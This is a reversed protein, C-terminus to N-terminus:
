IPPRSLNKIEVNYLAVGARREEMNLVRFVVEDQEDSCIRYEQGNQLNNDVLPEYEVEVVDEKDDVLIEGLPTKKVINLLPGRPHDFTSFTNEKDLFSEESEKTAQRLSKRENKTPSPSAINEWDVNELANSPMSKNRRHERLQLQETMSRVLSLEKFVDIRGSNTRVDSM